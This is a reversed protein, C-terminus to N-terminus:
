SIDIGLQELMKTEYELYDKEGYKMWKKYYAYAYKAATYGVEFTEMINEVTIQKKM